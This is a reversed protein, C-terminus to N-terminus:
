HAENRCLNSSANCVGAIGCALKAVNYLMKKLRVLHRMSDVAPQCTSGLHREAGIMFLTSLMARLDFFLVDSNETM